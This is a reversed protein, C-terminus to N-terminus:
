KSGQYLVDAIRELIDNAVDVDGATAGAKVALVRMRTSAQDRTRETDIRVSGGDSLKGDIRGRGTTVDVNSANVTYGLQDRVCRLATEHAEEFETPFTVQVERTPLMTHEIVPPKSDSECGPLIVASSFSALVILHSIRIMTSFASNPTDLLLRSDREPLALNMPM